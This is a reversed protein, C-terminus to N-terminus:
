DGRTFVPVTVCRCNPTWACNPNPTTFDLDGLEHEQGDLEACTGGAEACKDTGDDMIASYFCTEIETAVAKMADNRGFTFSTIITGELRAKLRPTSMAELAELVRTVVDGGVLGSLRASIAVELARTVMDETTGEAYLEALRKVRAFDRSTPDLLDSLAATAPRSPAAGELQRKREEKISVRGKMYSEKLATFLARELEGIRPYKVRKKTLDKETADAVASALDRKQKVRIPDVVDDFMRVPEQDFYDTFEEFAVSAEHPMPKRSLGFTRVSAQGSAILRRAAERYKQKETKKKDNGEPDVEQGPMLAVAAKARSTEKDMPPLYFGKRLQAELPDDPEIFDGERLLKLSQALVEIDIADLNEIQVPPVPAKPGFNQRVLDATHTTRFNNSFNGCIGQIALLMARRKVGGLARSGSVNSGLSMAENLLARGKLEDWYEMSKIIDTGQGSPFLWTLKFGAPLKVYQREHARLEKVVQKAQEMEKKGAGNPVEIVPIGMGHREHRMADIVALQRWISWAIYCSRMLSRGWYNDGDRRFSFLELRDAPIRFRGMGQGDWAWQEMWELKRTPDVHFNIVSKPHRPAVKQIIQYGESTTGWVKEGAFFGFVLQTRMVEEIFGQWGSGNQLLDYDVTHRRVFAAIKKDDDTSVPEGNTDRGSQTPPVSWSSSTMPAVLQFLAADIQPDSSRMEEYVQMADRGQLEPVYDALNFIDGRMIVVGTAGIEKESNLIEIPSTENTKDATVKAM